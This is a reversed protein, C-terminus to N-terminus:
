SLSELASIALAEIQDQTAAPAHGVVRLISARPITGRFGGVGPARVSVFARDGLVLDVVLPLPLGDVVSAISARVPDVLVVDGARLDPFLVVREPSPPILELPDLPRESKRRAQEKSHGWWVLGVGAVGAVALGALLGAGKM